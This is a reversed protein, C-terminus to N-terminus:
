NAELYILLTKRLQMMHHVLHDCSVLPNLSDLVDRTVNVERYM